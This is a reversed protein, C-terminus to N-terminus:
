NIYKIYFNSFFFGESRKIRKAVVSKNPNKLIKDILSKIEIQDIKEM